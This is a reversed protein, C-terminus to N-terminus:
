ARPVQELIRYGPQMRNIFIHMAVLVIGVLSEPLKLFVHRWSTLAAGQVVCVQRTHDQCYFEYVDIEVYGHVSDLGRM